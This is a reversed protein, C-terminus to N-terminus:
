KGLIFDMEFTTCLLIALNHFFPFIQMLLSSLPPTFQKIDSKFQSCVVSRLTIPESLLSHSLLKAFLNTFFLNKFCDYDLFHYNKHNLFNYFM